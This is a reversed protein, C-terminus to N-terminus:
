RACSWGAPGADCWLPRRDRCNKPEFPTLAAGVTGKAPSPYSLQSPPETASLVLLFTTHGGPYKATVAFAAPGSARTPTGSIVGTLDNLSLGSPLPPDVVYEDFSMSVSPTLSIAEGVVAPFPQSGNYSLAPQPPPARDGGGCASLWSLGMFLGILRL